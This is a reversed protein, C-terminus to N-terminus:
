EVSLTHAIESFLTEDYPSVSDITWILPMIRKDQKDVSICFADMPYQGAYTYMVRFQSASTKDLLITPTIDSTVKTESNNPWGDNAAAFWDATLPETADVVILVVGPVSGAIGFAAVVGQKGGLTLEPRNVWESPYQFSFGYESNTYTKATYSLEHAAPTNVVITLQTTVKGAKNTATLEWCTSYEPTVVASGRSEVTGVGPAIAVTKAGSVDWSLTTNQGQDISTSSATFSNIVPPTAPVCGAASSVLVAASFIMLLLLWKQKNVIVRRKGNTVL